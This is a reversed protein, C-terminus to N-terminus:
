ASVDRQADGPRAVCGVGARQAEDLSAPHELALGPEEQRREALVGRVGLRDRVLEEDARAQDTLDPRPEPRVEGGPPSDVLLDHLDDALLHVRDAALLHRHRHQRGRLEPLGAAPVVREVDEHLYAVARLAFEDEGRGVLLRDREM